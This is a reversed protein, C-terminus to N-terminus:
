TSRQLADTMDVVRGAEGIGLRRVSSSVDACAGKSCRNKSSLGAYKRAVDPSAAPGFSAISSIVPSSGVPQLKVFFHTM